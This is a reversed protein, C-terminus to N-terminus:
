TGSWIAESKAFDMISTIESLVLEIKELVVKPKRCNQFDRAYEELDGSAAQLRHCELNGAMGKLLHAVESVKVYERCEWHSKLSDYSTPLENSCSSCILGEVFVRDGDFTKLLADVDIPVSTQAQNTEQSNPINRPKKLNKFCCRFM